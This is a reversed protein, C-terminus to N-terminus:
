PFPFARAAICVKHLMMHLALGSQVRRTQLPVKECVDPTVDSSPQKLHEGPNAHM